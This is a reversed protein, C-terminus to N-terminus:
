LGRSWSSIGQTDRLTLTQGGKRIQRAVVVDAGGYKVRSGIVELEDGQQFSVSQKTVWSTPGLHVDVTGHDATGFMLHTVTVIREMQRVEQVTGRLTVETGPDYPAEVGALGGSQQAEPPPTHPSSEPSSEGCALAVLGAALFVSLRLTVNM